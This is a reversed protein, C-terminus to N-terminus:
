PIIKSIPYEVIGSAGARKLQPIVHKTEQVNLITEVALWGKDQRKYV